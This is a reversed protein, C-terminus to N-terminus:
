GWGRRGGKEGAWLRRGRGVEGEGGLGRGGNRKEERREGEGKKKL